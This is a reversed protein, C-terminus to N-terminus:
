GPYRDNCRQASPHQEDRKEVTAEGPGGGVDSYSSGSLCIVVLGRDRGHAPEADRDPLLPAFPHVVEVQPM